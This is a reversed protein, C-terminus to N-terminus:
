KKWKMQGQNQFNGYNGSNPGPPGPPGGGGGPGQQGQFQGQGPPGASSGYMTTQPMRTM